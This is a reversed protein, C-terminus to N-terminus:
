LSGNWRSGLRVKLWHTTYRQSLLIRTSAKEAVALDGGPFLLQLPDSEGRLVEALKSGCRDLLEVEAKCAPYRERLAFSHLLPEKVDPIRLVEWELNLKTLVGDEELMELMRGMLERYKENVSLWEVLSNDSLRRHVRFDWGLTHFAKTVYNACLTSIQDLMADDSDLGHQKFLREVGPNSRAIREPSGLCCLYVVSATPRRRGVPQWELEYFWDDLRQPISHRMAIGEVRKLHLGVVEAVMNGTEDFIDINGM